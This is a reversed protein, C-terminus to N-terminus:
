WLTEMRSNNYVVENCRFSKTLACFDSISVAGKFFVCSNIFIFNVNDGKLSAGLGCVDLICYCNYTILHCM